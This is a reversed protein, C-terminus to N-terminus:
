VPLRHEGNRQPSDEREPVAAALEPTRGWLRCWEDAEELCLGDGNRWRQVAAPSPSQVVAALGGFASLVAPGSGAPRGLADLLHVIAGAHRALQEGTLRLELQWGLGRIRTAAREVPHPMSGWRLEERIAAELGIARTRVEPDAPDARGDAVAQLFPLVRDRTRRLREDDAFSRRASDSISVRSRATANRVRLTRQVVAHLVGKLLVVSLAFAPGTLAGALSTTMAELGFRWIGLGVVSGWVIVTSLIAWRTSYHIAVLILLYSVGGAMLLHYGNGTAPPVALYNTLLGVLAAGLLVPLGLPPLRHGPWQSAVLAVACVVLLGSLMLPWNEIEPLLLLGMLLLGGIGPWVIPNLSRTLGAWARQVEEKGTLPTWSLEVTTGGVGSEIVSHGGIEAMRGRVSDRLGSGLRTADFGRGADTIRVVVRGRRRLLRIRVGPTGAHRAVNRLAEARALEFAEAVEGPVIALRGQLSARLGLEAAVQSLRVGVEAASPTPRMHQDGSRLRAATRAAGERGQEAPVRDRPLVIARLSHIVEDHLFRNVERSRREQQEQAREAALAAGREAQARDHQAAVRRCAMLAIVVSLSLQVGLVVEVLGIVLPDGSRVTAVLRLGAFVAVAMGGLVWRYRRGFALVYLQVAHVASTPWWGSEWIGAPQGLLILVLAAATVVVLGLDTSLSNRRTLILAYLPIQVLVLAILGVGGIPELLNLEAAMPRLTALLILLLAAVTLSRIAFEVSKTWGIVGPDPAAGPVTGAKGGPPTAPSM